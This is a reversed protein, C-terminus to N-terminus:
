KASAGNAEALLTAYCRTVGDPLVLWTQGNRFKSKDDTRVKMVDPYNHPIGSPRWALTKSLDDTMFKGNRVDFKGSVEFVPPSRNKNESMFKWGVYDVGVPLEARLRECVKSVEALTTM